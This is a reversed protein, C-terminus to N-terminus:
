YILMPRSYVISVGRCLWQFTLFWNLMNHSPQFFKCSGQTHQALQSNILTWGLQVQSLLGMGANLFSPSSLLISIPRIQILHQNLFFLSVKSTIITLRNVICIRQRDSICYLLYSLYISSIYYIGCYLTHFESPHWEWLCRRRWSKQELPSCKLHDAEYPTRPASGGPRRLIKRFNEFFKKLFYCIISKKDYKEFCNVFMAHIKQSNHRFVRIKPFNQSIKFFKQYFNLLFISNKVIKPFTTSLFVAKPFLIM